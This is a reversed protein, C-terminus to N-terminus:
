ATTLLKELRELASNWGKNMMDEIHAPDLGTQILDLRTGGSEPTLEFRIVSEPGMGMAGMDFALTFEVHRPPRVERVAGTVKAADGGPSVMVAFWPGERSFDLDNDAITTGEPGWWRLLTDHGTLVAFVDEPPRPFRRTMHLRGDMSM